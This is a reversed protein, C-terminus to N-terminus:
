AHNKVYDMYFAIQKRMLDLYDNTLDNLNVEEFHKENTKPNLLRFQISNAKVCIPLVQKEVGNIPTEYRIPTYGHEFYLTCEVNSIDVGLLHQIEAILFQKREAILNRTIKSM